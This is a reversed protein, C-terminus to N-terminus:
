NNRRDEEQRVWLLSFAFLYGSFSGLLEWNGLPRTAYLECLMQLFIWSYLGFLVSV